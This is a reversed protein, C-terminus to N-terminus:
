PKIAKAIWLFIKILYFYEFEILSIENTSLVNLYRMLLLNKSYKKVKIVITYANLDLKIDKNISVKDYKM